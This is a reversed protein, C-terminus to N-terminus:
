SAFPQLRHEGDFELAVPKDSITLFDNGELQPRVPRTVWFVDMRGTNIIRAAKARMPDAVTDFVTEVAARDHPRPIPLKAARLVRSTLANMYTAELDVKAMMRETTIDALGIGTANGHSAPTLDLVALSRYDPKREGGERRWFGVVNPDMGAGSVDKGMEDVILVDLETLPLRPFLEWARELFEKDTAEFEHPAAMRLHETRGLANETVAIGCLIPAKRLILKAAPVITEALKYKHMNSAGRQRGLGVAMIKCIGSEVHSRFATHPKVRNIVVIHEADMADRAVFVECGSDLRGLSVVDMTAKVPVGTSQPTIGLGALVEAQGEGTAGGHSGMAPIIYPRLGMEQLCRVTSIVLDKLDHTGRSGVAVAVSQGPSYKGSFDFAEFETRVAASVDNIPNVAFRRTVKYFDPFQMEPM